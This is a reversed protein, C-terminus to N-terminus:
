GHREYEVVPALCFLLFDTFKNSYRETPNVPGGLGAEIKQLSVIVHMKFAVILDCFHDCHTSTTAHRFHIAFGPFHQTDDKRNRKGDQQPLPLCNVTVSRWYWFFYDGRLSLKQKGFFINHLPLQDPAGNTAM